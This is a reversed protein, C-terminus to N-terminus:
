LRRGFLLRLFRAAFFYVFLCVFFFFLRYIYGHSWLIEHSERSVILTSVDAVSEDCLVCHTGTSKGYSRDGM